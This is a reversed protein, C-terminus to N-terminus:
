FDFRAGIHCGQLSLDGQNAVFSGLASPNVFRMFQNQAYLFIQDWGFELFFRKLSGNWDWQGRVGFSIDVTSVSTRFVEHIGLIKEHHPLTREAQHLYFEGYLLSFLFDGFLSWRRVVEWSSRMGACPGIGWFKNKMSFQEERDPALSGGLYFLNYKQRIWASRLGLVPSFSCSNIPHWQKQMILDLLGLHLRWHAKAIDAYAPDQQDPFKWLPFLVSGDNATRHGHANTHLHKLELSFSWLDHPIRYGLGVEFGFDWDFHLNEGKSEPALSTTSDSEVAFALGDEHAQWYVPDAFFFFGRRLSSSNEMEQSFLFLPGIIGILLLPIVKM